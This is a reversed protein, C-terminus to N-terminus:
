YILLVRYLLSPSSDICVDGASTKGVLDGPTIKAGSSRFGYHSLCCGGIDWLFSPRGDHLCM